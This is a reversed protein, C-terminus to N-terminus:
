GFSKLSKKLKELHRKMMHFSLVISDVYDSDMKQTLSVSHGAVSSSNVEMCFALANEIDKCLTDIKQVLVNVNRVSEASKFSNEM